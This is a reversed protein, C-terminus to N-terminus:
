QGFAGYAKRGKKWLVKSLGIFFIIWIIQMLFGFITQNSSLKGFYIELPFSFTYRFPLLNVVTLFSKPFFSLPLSYGGLFSRTGWFLGELFGVETIWFALLGLCFSLSFTLLIALVVAVLSAVISWFSFPFALYHHFVIVLSISALLGLPTSVLHWGLEKTLLWRFYSIPKILANLVITGDKIDQTITYFPFWFVLWQLFLAAIYYAILEPKTYGGLTKGALSSLWVAAITLASIMGSVVWILIPGRYTLTHIVSIRCFVWYKSVLIIKASFSSLSTALM